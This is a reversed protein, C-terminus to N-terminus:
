KMKKVEMVVLYVKSEGIVVYDWVFWNKSWNKKMLNSYLRKQKLRM